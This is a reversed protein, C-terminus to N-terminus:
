HIIPAGVDAIDAALWIEYSVTYHEGEDTMEKDQLISIEMSHGIIKQLTHLLNMNM